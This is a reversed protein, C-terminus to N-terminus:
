QLQKVIAKGVAGASMPNQGTILHGDVIVHEKTAELKSYKHAKEVLSEELLYPIKDITGFAIEEERTFGTVHRGDLISKGNSLVIPLLGAPGHCVAAVPKNNEYLKKTIEAVEKNKALDYLLGYGGPYFAADYDASNIDSAKHTNNLKSMFEENKLYKENMPDLNDKDEHGYIPAEGGNISVLEYGIDSKTFEEVAHTLEALYTGNKEGEEGLTAHNTLLVLVKKKM